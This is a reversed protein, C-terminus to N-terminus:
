LTAKPYAAALFVKYARSMAPTLRTHDLRNENREQRVAM